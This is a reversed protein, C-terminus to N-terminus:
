TTEANKPDERYLAESIAEAVVRAVLPPFANGIMRYSASM